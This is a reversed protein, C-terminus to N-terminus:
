PQELLACGSSRIKSSTYRRVAVVASRSRPTAGRMGGTGMCGGSWPRTNDTRYNVLLVSASATVGTSQGGSAILQRM